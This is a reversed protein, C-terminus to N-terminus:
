GGNSVIRVVARGQAPFGDQDGGFQEFESHQGHSQRDTEVLHRAADPFGFIQHWDEIPQDLFGGAHTLVFAGTQKLLDSIKLKTQKM